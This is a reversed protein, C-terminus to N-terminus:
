LLAYPTNAGHLTHHKVLDFILLISPLFFFYFLLHISFPLCFMKILSHHLSSPIQPYRPFYGFTSLLVLRWGHLSAAPLYQLTDIALRYPSGGVQKNKRNLDAVAVRRAKEQDIREWAQSDDAPIPREENGVSATLDVLSPDQQKQPTTTAQSSPSAM